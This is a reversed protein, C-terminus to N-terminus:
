DGEWLYVSCEANAGLHSQAAKSLRSPPLQLDSTPHEANVMLMRFVVGM